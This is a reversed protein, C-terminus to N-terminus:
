SLFRSACICLECRKCAGSLGSQGALENRSAKVLQTSMENQRTHRLHLLAVAISLKVESCPMKHGFSSSVPQHRLRTRYDYTPKSRHRTSLWDVPRNQRVPLDLLWGAKGASGTLRDAMKRHELFRDAITDLLVAQFESNEQLKNIRQYRRRLAM